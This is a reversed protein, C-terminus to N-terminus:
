RTQKDRRDQRFREMNERFQQQQEPTLTGEVRTRYSELIQQLKARQEDNLPPPPPLFSRIQASMEESIQKIQSRQESTLNLRMLEHPLVPVGPPLPPQNGSNARNQRVQELQEPTLIGEVKKSYSQALQRIKEQQEATPQPPRPVVTEIQAQMERNIQRIQEQQQPSLKIGAFGPVPPLPKPVDTPNPAPKQRSGSEQATVSNPTASLAIARAHTSYPVSAAFGATLAIAGALMPLFKLNMVAGKVDLYLRAQTRDMLQLSERRRDCSDFRRIKRLVLTM